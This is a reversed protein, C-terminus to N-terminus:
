RAVDLFATRGGVGGSVSTEAALFRATSSLLDVSELDAERWAVSSFADLTLRREEVLAAVSIREGVLLIWSLSREETSDREDLEAERWVEDLRDDDVRLTLFLLGSGSCTSEDGDLAWSEEGLVGM